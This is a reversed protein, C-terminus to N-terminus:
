SFPFFLPSLTMVRLGFVEESSTVPTEARNGCRPTFDGLPLAAEEGAGWSWAAAAM